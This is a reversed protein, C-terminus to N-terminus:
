DPLRMVKWSQSIVRALARAAAEEGQLEKAGKSGFVYSRTGDENGAVILGSWKKEGRDM